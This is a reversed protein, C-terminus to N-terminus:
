LQASLSKIKEEIFDIYKEDNQVDFIALAKEMYRKAVSAKGILEYNYGIHYHLEGLLYLNDNKLCWKIADKCISISQEFQKLRTMTRAINYYLRSVITADQIHPLLKLHKKAHLYIALADELKGQDFFVVGKSIYIEIERETWHTSHSLGIAEDLLQICKNFQGNLNHEYIAKHWLLLQRNKRNQIFLPNQEENKVIQKIDEYQLNRRALMLQRSVEQVYELKPTSGIEFFYNVDVGLRQSIQYLTSAYPFVDGKEIKSIQAQTCIGNALDKQTLGLTKRLEKIKEGIVIFDV